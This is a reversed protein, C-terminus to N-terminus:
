RCDFYGMLAKGTTVSGGVAVIISLIIVVIVVIVSYITRKWWAIYSLGFPLLTLVPTFYVWLLFWAAYSKQTVKGKTLGSIMALLVALFFLIALAMPKRGVLATEVITRYHASSPQELVFDIDPYHLHMWNHLSNAMVPNEHPQVKWRGERLIISKGRWEFVRVNKLFTCERIRKRMLRLHRLHPILHNPAVLDGWGQFSLVWTQEWCGQSNYRRECRLFCGVIYKKPCSRRWFQLLAFGYLRPAATVETNQSAVEQEIRTHDGNAVVFNPISTGQTWSTSSNMVANQECCRPLQLTPLQSYPGLTNVSTGAPMPEEHSPRLVLVYPYSGNLINAVLNIFSMLLYPLIVIYPSSLGAQKFSSIGDSSLQIIGYIFQVMTLIAISTNSNPYFKLDKAFVIKTTAPLVFQLYQPIKTKVDNSGFQRSSRASRHDIFLSQQTNHIIQRWGNALLTPALIAPVMIGVAEEAVAESVSDGQYWKKFKIQGKRLRDLWAIISAIAYCGATVPAVLTTIVRLSTNRSTTGHIPHITAAHGLINTIFFLFIKWDRQSSSLPVCERPGITSNFNAVSM